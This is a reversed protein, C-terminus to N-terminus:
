KKWTGDEQMTEYIADRAILAAEKPAYRGPLGPAYLVPTEDAWGGPASALDICLAGGFGGRLVPAPVTNFVADYTGSISTIDVSCFGDTEALACSESRRAAVTVRAGLAGLRRALQRGIRGYGAVLVSRGMVPARRQMWLAVAGEATLAANRIAYRENQYYPLGRKMNPPVIVVGDAGISHGDATLLAELPAFRPDAGQLDFRM